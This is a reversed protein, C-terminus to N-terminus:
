RGVGNTMMAGRDIWWITAVALGLLILYVVARGWRGVRPKSPTEM